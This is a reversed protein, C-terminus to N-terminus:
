GFICITICHVVLWNREVGDHKTNSSQMKVINVARYRVLVSLSLPICLAQDIGLPMM